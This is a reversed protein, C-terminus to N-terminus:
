CTTPTGRRAISGDSESRGIFLHITLISIMLLFVQVAIDAIEWQKLPALEDMEALHIQFQGLQERLHVYKDSFYITFKVVSQYLM